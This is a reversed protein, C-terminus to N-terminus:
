PSGGVDNAILITWVVVNGSKGAESMVKNIFRQFKQPEIKLEFPMRTFEFQGLPTIFSTYKISDPAMAVHYFGDKLDLISFFKKDRLMDLQDEILPLLYKDQVM